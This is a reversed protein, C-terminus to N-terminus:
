GRRRAERLSGRGQEESGSRAREPGRCLILALGAIVLIVPLVAIRTAYDDGGRPLSRGRSDVESLDWPLLLVWALLALGIGALFSTLRRLGRPNVM